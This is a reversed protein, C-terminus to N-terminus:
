LLGKRFFGEAAQGSDNRDDCAYNAGRNNTAEEKTTRDEERDEKDCKTFYDKENYERVLNANVNSCIITTIFCFREVLSNASSSILGQSRKNMRDVGLTADKMSRAMTTKRLQSGEIDCRLVSNQLGRLKTVHSVDLTIRISLLSRLRIEVGSRMVDTIKKVNFSRLNTSSKKSARDNRTYEHFDVKGFAMFLPRLRRLLSRIFQTLNINGGDNAVLSRNVRFNAGHFGELHVTKAHRSRPLVYIARQLCKALTNGTNMPRLARTCHILYRFNDTGYLNTRLLSVTPVKVGGRRVAKTRLKRTNLIRRTPVRIADIRKNRDNRLTTPSMIDHRARPIPRNQVQVDQRRRYPRNTINMQVDGNVVQRTVNSLFVMLYPMTMVRYVILRLFRRRM